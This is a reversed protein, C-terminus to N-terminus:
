LGPENDMEYAFIGGSDASGYKGVLANVEEDLYVYDDTLDPTTSM